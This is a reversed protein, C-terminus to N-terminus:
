CHQLGRESDQGDGQDGTRNRDLPQRRNGGPLAHRQAMVLVVAAIPMVVSRIGMGVVAVAGRGM